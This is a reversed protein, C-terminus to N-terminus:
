KETQKRRRRIVFFYIVVVVALMGIIVYGYNTIYKDALEWNEGFFMGLWILLANWLLAGGIALFWIRSVRMKSIGAVFSVVARTGSLFRNLLVISYGYKRFWRQSKQINKKSIFKFRKSEIIAVGYKRGIYYMLLFGASSGITSAILLPIFDTAGVYILSGCFVLLTDSPSPPFVNELFTIFAAFLLISFWPLAKILEILTSVSGSFLEELM